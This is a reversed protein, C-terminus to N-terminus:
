WLKVGNHITAGVPITLFVGLTIWGWKKGYTKGMKHSVLTGVGTYVASYLACRGDSTCPGRENFGRERGVHSTYSDGFTSLSLLILSEKIL